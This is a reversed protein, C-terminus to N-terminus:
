SASAADLIDVQAEAGVNGQRVDPAELQAAAVAVQQAIGRIAGDDLGLM